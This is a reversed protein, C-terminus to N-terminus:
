RVGITVVNEKELKQLMRKDLICERMVLNRYIKPTEYWERLEHGTRMRYIECARPVVTKAAECQRDLIEYIEPGCIGTQQLIGKCFKWMCWEVERGREWISNGLCCFMIRPGPFGKVVMIQGICPTWMGGTADIVRQVLRRMERVIWGLHDRVYEKERWLVLGEVEKVYVTHTSYSREINQEEYKLVKPIIGMNELTRLVSELVLRRKGDDDLFGRSFLIEMKEMFSPSIIM